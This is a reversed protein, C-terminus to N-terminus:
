WVSFSTFAKTCVYRITSASSLTTGETKKKNKKEKKRYSFPAHM